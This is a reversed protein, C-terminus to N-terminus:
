NGSHNKISIKVLEEKDPESSWKYSEDGEWSRFYFARFYGSKLPHFQEYYKRGEPTDGSIYVSIGSLQNDVERQLMAKDSFAIISLAHPKPSVAPYEASFGLFVKRLNDSTFDKAEILLFIKRQRLGNPPPPVNLAVWITVGYKNSVMWNKRESVEDGSIKAQAYINSMVIQALLFIFLLYKFQKM